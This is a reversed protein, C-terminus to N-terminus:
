YFSFFSFAKPSKNKVTFWFFIPRVWIIQNHFLAFIIAFNNGKFLLM